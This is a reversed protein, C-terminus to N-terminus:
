QSKLGCVNWCCVRPYPPYCDSLMVKKCLILHVFVNLEKNVIITYIFFNM